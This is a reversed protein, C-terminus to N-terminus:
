RARGRERQPALPAQLTGWAAAMPEGLEGEWKAIVATAVANGIVNTASRGMDLFHDVALILLLGAEPINFFPLTAAIVVLSARPVAAIGKSTVLLLLLMSIQQEVGLHIGYAQAIFLTAFSCYMMSGDLNFSYGLPMVFGAIRPPVGFRELAELMKPYAAESSATAFTLLFPERIERVLRLIRPVGIVSAGAGLLLLWLIALALYFGGMFAAYTKIIALGYQAIAGAVAAFVAPPAAYMVYGTIRLMLAALADLGRTIPAGAEGIATLAVGAFVSFVVIQLVENQAMADFISKPVLHAVFDKLNFATRAVGSVADAAPLALSLGEGPGLLNVLVLGLTLSVLSAAIFWGITRTFMRGISAGAGMHAIGTMLTALVLPAIIMKILRLFVETVIGLYGAITKAKDPAASVNIAYGAVLGLALAILIYVTLRKGM